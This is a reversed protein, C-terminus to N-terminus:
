KEMSKSIQLVQGGLFLVIAVIIVIILAIKIYQAFSWPPDEDAAAVKREVPKILLKKAQSPSGNFEEQSIKVSKEKEDKSDQGVLPIVATRGQQGLKSQSSNSLSSSSSRRGGFFQSEPLKEVIKKDGGLGGGDAGRQSGIAFPRDRSSGGRGSASPDRGSSRERGSPNTVTEARENQGRNKNAIPPRGGTFTGPEFRTNCIGSDGSGGITPLEGVDLLCELYAGMYNQVFKGFPKYLQNALGLILALAIVLLLIYEVLAQGSQSNQKERVVMENM